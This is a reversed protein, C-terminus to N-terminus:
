VLSGKGTHYEKMGGGMVGCKDGEEEEGWVGRGREGVGYVSREGGGERM